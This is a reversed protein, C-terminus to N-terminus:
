APQGEGGVNFDEDGDYNADSEDDSREEEWKLIQLQTKKFRNWASWSKSFRRALATLPALCGEIMPEKLAAQVAINLCHCACRNWDWLEDKEAGVLVDSGCDSTLVPKDLQPELRFYLLKDLKVVDPCQPTRGDSSRPYLGFELRLDMLKKSINAATHDEPFSITGLIRTKLRWDWPIWHMSMAMSSEGIPSTWFDTTFAIDTEKAVEERIEKEQNGEWLEESQREVLRTVIQKLISPWRPEWKRM